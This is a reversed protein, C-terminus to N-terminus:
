KGESDGGGGVCQCLSDEKVRVAKRGRDVDEKQGREREEMMEENKLGEWLKNEKNM